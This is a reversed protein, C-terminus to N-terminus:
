ESASCSTENSLLQILSDCVLQSIPPLNHSIPLSLLVSTGYYLLFCAILPYICLVIFLWFYHGERDGPVPSKILMSLWAGFPLPLKLLLVIVGIVAYALIPAFVLFLCVSFLLSQDLPDNLSAILFESVNTEYIAYFVLSFGLLLIVALLVKIVIDLVHLASTQVWWLYKHENKQILVLIYRSLALSFFSAAACILPIICVFLLIGVASAPMALFWNQYEDFDMKLVNGMPYVLCVGVVTSIVIAIFLQYRYSIHSFSQTQEYMGIAQQLRLLAFASTFGLAIFFAPIAEFDVIWIQVLKVVLLFLSLFVSVALFSFDFSFGYTVLIVALSLYVLHYFLSINTFSFDSVSYVSIAAWIFVTSSIFMLLKFCIVTFGNSLRETEFNYWSIFLRPVFYALVLYLLTIPFLFTYEWSVPLNFVQMGFLYAGDESLSHWLFLLPPYLMAAALCLNFAQLSLPAGFLQLSNGYIRNLAKKYARKPTVQVDHMWEAVSTNMSQLMSSFYSIVYISIFVFFISVLTATSM